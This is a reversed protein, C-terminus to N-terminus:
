YTAGLYASKNLKCKHRHKSALIRAQQIFELTPIALGTAVLLLGDLVIRPLLCQASFRGLLSLSGNQIAIM